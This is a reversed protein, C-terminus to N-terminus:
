GRCESPSEVSKNIVQMVIGAAGRAHGHTGADHVGGGTIIIEYNAGGMEEHDVTLPQDIGGAQRRLPGPRQLGNLIGGGAPFEENHMERGVGGRHIGSELAKAPVIDPTRPDVGEKDAMGVIIFAEIEAGDM